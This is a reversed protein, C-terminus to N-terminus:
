WFLCSHLGGGGGGGGGQYKVDAEVVWQIVEEIALNMPGVHPGDPASLVWTPGINAGHVISDPYNGIYSNIEYVLLIM